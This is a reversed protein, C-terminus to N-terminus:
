RQAPPYNGTDMNRMYQRAFVMGVSWPVTQHITRIRVRMQVAGDMMGIVTLMASILVMSVRATTPDSTEEMTAFGMEAFVVIGQAIIVLKAVGMTIAIATTIVDATQAVFHTPALIVRRGTVIDMEVSRGGGKVESVATWKAHFVTRQIIPIDKRGLCACTIEVATRSAVRRKKRCAYM